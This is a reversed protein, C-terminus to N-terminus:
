RREEHPLASRFENRADLTAAQSDDSRTRSRPDFRQFISLQILGLPREEHPLASRFLKLFANPLSSSPREEHPLASRFVTSFQSLFIWSADSRTRSRP